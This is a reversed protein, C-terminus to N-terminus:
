IITSFIFEAMRRFVNEAMTADTGVREARILKAKITRRPNTRDLLPHCGICTNAYIAKGARVLDPNLPAHEQPWVPSWLTRVSAELRRLNQKLISSSYSPPLLARPQVDVKGFVALVESINRIM